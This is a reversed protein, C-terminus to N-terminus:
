EMHWKGNNNLVLSWGDLWIRVSTQEDEISFDLGKQLLEAILKQVKTQEEAM